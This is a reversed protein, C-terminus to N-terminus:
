QIKQQNFYLNFRFDTEDSPIVIALGRFLLHAQEAYDFIRNCVTENVTDSFLRRIPMSLEPRDTEFYIKISYLNSTLFDIAVLRIWANLGFMYNALKKYRAVASPPVLKVFHNDIKAANAPPRQYYLVTNLIQKKKYIRFSLTTFQTRIWSVKEATSVIQPNYSKINRSLFDKAAMWADPSEVQFDYKVIGHDAHYSEASFLRLNPVEEILQKLTPCQYYESNETHSKKYYIKESVIEGSQFNFGVFDIRPNYALSEHEYIM